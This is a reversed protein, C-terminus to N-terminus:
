RHTAPNGCSRTEIEANPELRKLDYLVQAQSKLHHSVDLYIDLLM